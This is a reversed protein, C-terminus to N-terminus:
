KPHYFFTRLVLGSATEGLQKTFFTNKFIKSVECYFLQSPIEKKIFSNRAAIVSCVPEFLNM